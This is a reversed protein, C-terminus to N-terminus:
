IALQCSLFSFCGDMAVKRPLLQWHVRGENYFEVYSAMFFGRHHVYM